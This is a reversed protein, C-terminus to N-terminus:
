KKSNDICEDRESKLIGNELELDKIRKNLLAVVEDRSYERRLKLLIERDKM